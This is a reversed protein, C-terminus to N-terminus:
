RGKEEEQALERALRAAVAMPDQDDVPRGQARAEELRRSLLEATEKTGPEPAAQPAPSSPEEESLAATKADLEAAQKAQLTEKIQRARRKSRILAPNLIGGKVGEGAADFAQEEGLLVAICRSFKEGIEPDVTVAFGTNEHAFAFKFRIASPSEVRRPLAEIPVAFFRKIGPLGCAALIRRDTLVAVGPFRERGTDINAIVAAQPEEEPLLLAQAYRVSAQNVVGAGRGQTSRLAEQITM